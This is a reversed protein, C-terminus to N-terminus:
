PHPTAGAPATHRHGAPSAANYVGEVYHIFPVYEHIYARGAAVDNVDFKKKALAAAFRERLGDRVAHILLAEVKGVSGSALADDAANIAANEGIGAAKLGTYPAGEGERHVRVLTEFFWLDALERASPSQKRVALARTFAERIIPEDEARVWLLAHNVNGTELARQGATVVPGDMSDCHARAPRAAAASLLILAVGMSAIRGARVNMDVGGSVRVRFIAWLGVPESDPNRRIL